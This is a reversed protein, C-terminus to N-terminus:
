LFVLQFGWRSATPIFADYVFRCCGITKNILEQQKKNPYIRYKFTKVYCKVVKKAIHRWAHPLKEDFQRLIQVPVPDM